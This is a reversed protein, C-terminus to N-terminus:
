RIPKGPVNHDINRWLNVKMSYHGNHLYEPKFTDWREMVNYGIKEEIALHVELLEFTNEVGDKEITIKVNYKDSPM